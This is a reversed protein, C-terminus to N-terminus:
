DRPSPSTYLLCPKLPGGHTKDPPIGHFPDDRNVPNGDDGVLRNGHADLENGEADTFKKYSAATASASKNAHGEAEIQAKEDGLAKIKKASELAVTAEDQAKLLETTKKKQEELTKKEDKARSEATQGPKLESGGHAELQAALERREEEIKQFREALQWKAAPDSGDRDALGQRYKEGNTNLKDLLKVRESQSETVEFSKQTVDQAAFLKTQDEDVKAQRERERHEQKSAFEKDDLEILADVKEKDSMVESKNIEDKKQAFDNAEILEQNKDLAAAEKALQSLATEDEKAAEKIDRLKEAWQETATKAADALPIYGALAKHVQAMAETEGGLAKTLRNTMTLMEGGSGVVAEMAPKLFEHLAKGLQETGEKLHPTDEMLDKIGERYIAIGGVLAAMSGLVVTFSAGLATLGESLALMAEAEGGGMLARHAFRAGQAGQMLQKRAPDMGSRGGGGSDSVDEGDNGIMAGGGAGGPAAPTAKIEASIEKRLALEERLATMRAAVAGGFTTKLSREGAELDALEQTLKETEGALQRTAGQVENLGQSAQQFAGPNSLGTKIDISFTKDAM